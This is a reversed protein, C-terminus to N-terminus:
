TIDAVGLERLYECLEDYGFSQGLEHEIAFGSNLLDGGQYVLFAPLLDRDLKPKIAVALGVCVKVTENQSAVDVLIRNVRLCAEVEESFLHVVVFTSAGAKEVANVFDARGVTIVSGFLPKEKKAKEKKMERLRKERYEKMFAEEDEGEEEEDRHDLKTVTTPKGSITLRKAEEVLQRRKEENELQKLIRDQKYDEIVGKPGTNGGARLPPPALASAEDAAGAAETEEEEEDRDLKGAWLNGEQRFM